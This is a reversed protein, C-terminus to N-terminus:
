RKRKLYEKNQHLMCRKLFDPNSVYDLSSSFLLENLNNEVEDKERTDICHREQRQHYCLREAILSMIEDLNLAMQTEEGPSLMDASIKIRLTLVIGPRDGAVPRPSDLVERCVGNKLDVDKIIREDV